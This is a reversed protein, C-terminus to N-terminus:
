RAELTGVAIASATRGASSQIVAKYALGSAAGNFVTGQGASAVLALTFHALEDGPNLAIDPAIATGTGKLAVGVVLVDHLVGNGMTAASAAAALPAGPAFSGPVFSAKTTDLPLNLAVGRLATTAAAVIRMTLSACPNACADAVLQLTGPAPPTYVLNTGPRATVPVTVSPPNALAGGSSVANLTYTTEVSPRVLLSRMPGVNFTTAAGGGAPAATVAYSVANGKWSLTTADGQLISPPTAAFDTVVPPISVRATMRATAFEPKRGPKNYATLTYITTRTPHVVASGNPDVKTVSGSDGDTLTAQESGSTSWSLTVAGGPATQGPSVDATEIEFPARVNLSLSASAEVGDDNFARLTFTTSVIPYVTVPSGHVEGPYPDIRVTQAGHVVYSFQVPARADPNQQDVTFSEIVPRSSGFCGALLIVPLLARRM